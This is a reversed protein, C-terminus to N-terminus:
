QFFDELGKIKFFHFLTTLVLSWFFVSAALYSIVRRKDRELRTIFFTGIPISLFVPTLISLGILGYKNWLRVMKRSRKSFIRKSPPLDSIFEYHIELPDDVDAIPKSYRQQERKRHFFYDRLRGWLIMIWESCYMFFVVGLIGGITAYVNTELWSFSYRENISVFPIGFSFKVSSILILTIIQLFENM